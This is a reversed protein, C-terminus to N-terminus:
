PKEALTVTAAPIVISIFTKTDIQQQQVEFAEKIVAYYKNWEDETGGGAMFQNRLDLQEVWVDLPMAAHKLELEHGTYPPILWFVKDISRVDLVRLGSNHFLIPVKSGIENDGKGLKRKGENLLMDGKRLLLRKELPLNLKEVVTDFSTIGTYDPEIAVVIGGKKTVRKMENIAKTPENLHMLLTQCVTFDAFNDPIPLSYANGEKYEFVARNSLRNARKQAEEILKSDLDVGVVKGKLVYKSLMECLAGLGCGVELVISDEKLRFLPVLIKEFYDMNWMYQRQEDLFVEKVDKQSWFGEGFAEKETTEEDKEM